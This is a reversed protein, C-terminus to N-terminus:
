ELMKIRLTDKIGNDPGALLGGCFKAFCDIAFRWKRKLVDKM